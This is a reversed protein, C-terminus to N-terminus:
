AAQGSQAGRRQTFGAVLSEQAFGSCAFSSIQQQPTQGENASNNMIQYEVVIRHWGSVRTHGASFRVQMWVSHHSPEGRKQAM